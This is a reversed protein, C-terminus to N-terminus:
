PRLKDSARELWQTRSIGYVYIPRGLRNSDLRKLRTMGNRRAVSMSPANNVDIFSVVRDTGLNGFAWDRCARAAETAYGMKWFEPRLMYAVEVDERADVDDWHLLGIQGLYEGDAKREVAFMSYGRVRYSTLISDLVKKCHDLDYTQPYYHMVLPDSMLGFVLEAEDERYRRLRLRPTEILM